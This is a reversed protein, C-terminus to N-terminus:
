PIIDVAGTLQLSATFSVSGEAPATINFETFYGDGEIHFNTGTGEPDQYIVDLLTKNNFWSLLQEISAQGASPATEAIGDISFTYVPNSVATDTGCKTVTTTVNATGSM